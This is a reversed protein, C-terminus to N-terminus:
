TVDRKIRPLYSVLRLLGNPLDFGVTLVEGMFFWTEEVSKDSDTCKFTLQWIGGDAHYRAGLKLDYRVKKLDCRIRNPGVFGSKTVTMWGKPCTGGDGCWEGQFASPMEVGAHAASAITVALAFFGVKLFTM